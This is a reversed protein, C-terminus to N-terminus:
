TQLLDNRTKALKKYINTVHHKVTNLSIHLAAAIEANTRRHLKMALVELERPTLPAGEPGAPSGGGAGTSTERKWVKEGAAVRRTSDLLEESASRKHLYGDIEVLSDAPVDKMFDGATFVLIYPADPLAKMRRCLEIGSPKGALDSDVIVLDPAKEKVLRLAEEGAGAEGVIRIYGMGSLIARQGERMIPHSDVVAVRLPFKEKEKSGAM